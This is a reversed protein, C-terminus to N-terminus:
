NLHLFSENGLDGQTPASKALVLMQAEEYRHKHMKVTTRLQVWNFKDLLFSRPVVLMFENGDISCFWEIWTGQFSQNKAGEAQM